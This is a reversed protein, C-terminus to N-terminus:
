ATHEIDTYSTYGTIDVDKYGLPSVGGSGLTSTVEFGTLGITMDTISPLTGLSGTIAFGTTGIAIEPISGLSGQSGTISLGTLSVRQVIGAAPATLSMTGLFSGTGQVVDAVTLSGLSMTASLGGLGQTHDAGNNISLVGRSATLLLSDSLTFIFDYNLTPTGLSGTMSLGTLPTGIEITLGAQEGWAGQGWTHRGWGERGLATTMELGDLIVTTTNEGWNGYGWEDRGWGDESQAYPLTGLSGTMSLGTLSIVPSDSDGWPQNGWTARGWGQESAAGMEGLSGTISFGTPTISLSDTGWDNDGWALRGWGDTAASYALDGLSATISLGSLTVLVDNQEGWTGQSWSLAGWTDQTMDMIGGMGIGHVWCAFYFDTESTPAIEIYRTTAANFTTTNTYDSQNSSGDLYYTVGSSIIGAKMTALVSSNSTSFILPHGDNSSGSQDLRITGSAVWPFTFSAPQSGDFTYISGTSGTVYQTGTTVAVTLTLDAM